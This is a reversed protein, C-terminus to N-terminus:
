NIGGCWYCCVRLFINEVNALSLMCVYLVLYEFSGYLVACGIRVFFVDPFLVFLQITIVGKVLLPLSDCVLIKGEIIIAAFAASWIYYHMVTMGIVSILRFQRVIVALKPVKFNNLYQFNESM